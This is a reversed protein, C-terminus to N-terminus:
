SSWASGSPWPSTWPSTRWTPSSAEQTLGRFPSPPPVREAVVVAQRFVEYEGRPLRAALRPEYAKTLLPWLDKLLREPVLLVM